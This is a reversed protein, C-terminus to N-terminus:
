NQVEPIAKKMKVFKLDKDFIFIKIDKKRDAQLEYWLGTANTIKIYRECPEVRYKKMEVQKTMKPMFKYYEQDELVDCHSLEQTEIWNLNKDFIMRFHAYRSDPYWSIFGNKLQYFDKDFIGGMEIRETGVPRNSLKSVKQKFEMTPVYPKVGLEDTSKFMKQAFALSVSMLLVFTLIIKKM